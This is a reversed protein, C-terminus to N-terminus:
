IGHGHVLSLGPFASLVSEMPIIWGYSGSNNAAFVIGVTATGDDTVVLSGSDGPLAFVDDLARVSWVDKFYVTGKFHKANYSIPQPTLVRAEIVGRTLSTTRGFKKVITQSLPEHRKAPTDFGGHADGQWSSLLKDDTAIALALDITCPPVMAPHGTRLESILDHRGIEGPARMLPRGDASSPSLIPQGKPVHNCGALVHNNSLLYIQKSGGFKALAGLTGTSAESTPACSSGCCIRDKREFVHGLNTSAGAQEPRVNIAGMQHVRVRVGDVEKPLSKILRNSGRTLYIHVAPEETGQEFGVAQVSIAGFAAADRRAEDATTAAAALLHPVEIPGISASYRGEKFFEYSLAAAVDEATAM